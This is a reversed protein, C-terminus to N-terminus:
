GSTDRTFVSIEGDGITAPFHAQERYHEHIYRDLEPYELRLARPFTTLLWITRGRSDSEIKQLEGPESVPFFAEGEVIGQRPGYFRLGWKALYAAVIPEGPKRRSLVWSLSARNPQKPVRYYTPLSLLSLVALLAAALPVVARSFGPRKSAGVLNRARLWAALSAGAGVAFIWAVPLIWLFFRPSFRLNRVILFGATALLPAVLTFAYFFHRRAFLLVGFGGVAAAALAVAIAIGGFGAATGRVLEQLYEMSFLRYGVAATRYITNAYASVQTLVSAYLHLCLLGLASWALLLRRTLPWGRAGQRRLVLLGVGWALVHGAIVFIGYLVTAVALSMSLIYLVWDRPLDRTLGRIFFLTGLSSWFLLATYGRSNQSFFIHHYSVALLFAALLSERSRLAVRALAFVAPIGAVGFVVAPFRVAWEAPGFVSVMAQVMLTNLLHNNSSTYTTLVQFASVNRYDLVTTIEDLWLDSGLGYLRFAAAVLVIAGLWLMPRRADEGDPPSLKLLDGSAVSPWRLGSFGVLLLITGEVAFGLALVRAGEAPVLKALLAGVILCGASAGVLISKRTM